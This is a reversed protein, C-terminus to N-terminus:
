RSRLVQSQAYRSECACQLCSGDEFDLLISWPLEEREVAPSVPKKFDSLHFRRSIGRKNVEISPPSLILYGQDDIRMFRRKWLLTDPFQINVDGIDVVHTQSEVISSNTPTLDGSNEEISGSHQRETSAAEEQRQTNSGFASVISRRSGATLVSMRRRLRGKLPEKASKEEAGSSADSKTPPQNGPETRMHRMTMSLRKTRSETQTLKGSTSHNSSVSFRRRGTVSNEIPVTDAESSSIPPFIPESAKTASSRLTPDPGDHEVVLPSRQLNM